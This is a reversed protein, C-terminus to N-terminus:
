SAWWVHAPVTQLLPYEQYYYELGTLLVYKLFMGWKLTGFIGETITAENRYLYACCCSCSLITFMENIVFARHLTCM